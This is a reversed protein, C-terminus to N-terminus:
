LRVAVARWCCYEERVIVGERGESWWRDSRLRVEISVHKQSM